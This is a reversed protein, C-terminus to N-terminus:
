PYYWCGSASDGLSVNASIPYDSDIPRVIDPVLWFVKHQVTWGTILLGIPTCFTGPIM